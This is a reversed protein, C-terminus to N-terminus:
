AADRATEAHVIKRRKESIAALRQSDVSSIEFSLETDAARARWDRGLRSDTLRDYLNDADGIARVTYPPDVSVYNVTIASGATRISTLTGIRQGNVSIAEAGVYWLANVLVQLDSDSVDGRGGDNAAPVIRVRVGPGRVATAATTARLAQADPNEQGSAASLERVEVRLSSVKDRREASIARRVSVDQALAQQERQTAPRNSATQMATITIMLAFVGLVSGTLTTNFFRSPEPQGARVVYYDDDLATQAIRDLLGDPREQSSDPDVDNM